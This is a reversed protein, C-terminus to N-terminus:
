TSEPGSGPADEILRVLSFDNEGVQGATSLFPCSLNPPFATGGDVTNKIM